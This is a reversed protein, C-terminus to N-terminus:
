TDIIGKTKNKFWWALRENDWNAPNEMDPEIKVRNKMGQKIPGVYRYFSFSAEKKM